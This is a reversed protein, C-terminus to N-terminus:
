QSIMGVVFTASDVLDEKIGKTGKRWNAPCVEGYMKHYDNADIIRLYEDINRGIPDINMSTHIIDFNNDIIVTTRFSLGTRPNIAGYISSIEKKMDSVLPFKIQGIGGKNYATNRWALHCHASDVSIGIVAADRSEFDEIKNNLTMLETPCVFTFDLPYFFLIGYRGSIHEKLNFDILKNEATVAQATFDIAQNAFAAKKFQNIMRCQCTNDCMCTNESKQLASM